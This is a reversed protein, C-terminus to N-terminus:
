IAAVTVFQREAQVLPSNIVSKVLPASRLEGFELDEVDFWEDGGGINSYQDGSQTQFFQDYGYKQSAIQMGIRVVTPNFIGTKCWSILGPLETITSNICDEKYGM